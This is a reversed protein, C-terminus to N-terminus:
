HSDSGANGETADDSSGRRPSSGIFPDFRIDRGYDVIWNLLAKNRQFLPCDKLEAHLDDRYKWYHRWTAAWRSNSLGTQISWHQKPCGKPTECPVTAGPPIPTFDGDAGVQVEGTDHNVAYQRCDECKLLSLGTNLNVHLQVSDSLDQFDKNEDVSSYSLVNQVVLVQHSSAADGWCHPYSFLLQRAAPFNRDVKKKWEQKDAWLLPRCFVGDVPEVTFGDDIEEPIM